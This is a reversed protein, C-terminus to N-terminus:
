PVTTVEAIAISSATGAPNPMARNKVSSQGGKNFRGIPTATSNSAATGLMMNPIQPNNTSAGTSCRYTCGQNIPCRPCTGRTPLRNLPGGKPMPTRVAPTTRAMMTNGNMAAVMRSTKSVTGAMSLSDPYPSPAVVQSTIHFTTTGCERTPMTPPMMNPRPRASPSVMATVKTIPLACRMLEEKSAGPVVIEDAM